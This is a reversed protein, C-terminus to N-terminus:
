NDDDDDDFKIKAENRCSEFVEEPFCDFAEITLTASEADNSQIIVEVKNKDGGPEGAFSLAGYAAIDLDNNEFTTDSISVKVQNNHSQTETGPFNHTSAEVDMGIEGDAILNGVSVFEVYNKSSGPTFLDFGGTIRVNGFPAPINGRIVNDYAEVFVRNKSSGIGGNIFLNEFNENILANSRITARVLVNGGTPHGLFPDLAIIGLGVSSNDTSLNGELTAHAMKGAARVQFGVSHGTSRVGKVTGRATIVVGPRGGEPNHHGDLWLREVLGKDGVMIIGEGFVDEDLGSGDIRAGEQLVIPENDEDVVPVGNDDVAMRLTSRLITNKGMALRGDFPRSPDLYYVGPELIIKVNDRPRSNEDYVADYLTNIDGASVTIVTVDEAQDDGDGAWVAQAHVVGVALAGVWWVLVAVLKIWRDVRMRIEKRAM